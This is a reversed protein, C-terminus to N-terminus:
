RENERRDRHDDFGPPGCPRARREHDGGRRRELCADRRPPGLGVQLVRIGQRCGDSSSRPSSGFSPRRRRAVWDAAPLIEGVLRAFTAPDVLRGDVQLRERYSVLHPKPTEAVRLGAERLASAAIALVSGKGNTGAVLAGRLGLQPDGLERLLARTRGLGLRIGFRGRARTRVARAYRATRGARGTANL